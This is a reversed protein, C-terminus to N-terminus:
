LVESSYHSIYMLLTIIELPFGWSIEFIIPIYVKVALILIDKSIM